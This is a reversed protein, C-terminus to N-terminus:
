TYKEIRHEDLWQEIEEDSPAPRETALLGLAKELTDRKPRLPEIEKALTKLVDQVLSLRKAPPWTQVVELVTEYNLIEPTGM